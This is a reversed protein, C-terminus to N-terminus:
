NEMLEEYLQVYKEVTNRIDFKKVMEAGMEGLKQRLSPNKVLQLIAEALRSSDQPPVLLGNKGHIVIEPIGGSACAVVPIGLAQADLLSSGLGEKKSALVFINFSKLFIGVYSQFGAFVVHSTLGLQDAMARIRKEEPGNGVFCFHVGQTQNLVLRASHLLTPYDKHGVMSAVTGVLVCNGPIGWQKRFDKPVQVDHFRNLDIGSPILVMKKEPVGDNLLVRCIAESICVIKDLQPTYYKWRNWWKKGISFDVRRVTIVRLSPYFLKAWLCLTLAHATHAQLIHFKQNKCLQAIRFGAFIDLEGHMPLPFHPFSKEQVRIGLISGPPSVLATKIHKQHLGSLLYFVQQQGGRWTMADDVHLIGPIKKRNPSVTQIKRKDM